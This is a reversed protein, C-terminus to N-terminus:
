AAGGKLAALDLEGLLLQRCAEFGVVFGARRMALEVGCAPEISEILKAFRVAEPGERELLAALSQKYLRRYPESDIGSDTFENDLLGVLAVPDMGALVARRTPTTASPQSSPKPAAVPKPM